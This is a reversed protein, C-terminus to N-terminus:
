SSAAHPLANIMKRADEIGFLEILLDFTEWVDKLDGLLYEIDKTNGLEHRLIEQIHHRTPKEPVTEITEAVLAIAENGVHAELAKRGEEIREMRASIFAHKATGQAFGTLGWKAAMYEKAITERIRAIESEVMKVVGQQNEVAIVHIYICEM